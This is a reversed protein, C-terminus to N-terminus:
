STLLWNSTTYEASEDTGFRYEWEFDKAIKTFYRVYDDLTSGELGPATNIELVYAREEASNYIVDVAGFDLSTSGMFCDVAVDVCAEYGPKDEIGERSYVFGNAHNRIRWNPSPCGLRRAKRQVSIVSCTGVENTGLHVRYEEVKKVYKVYLPADVLEEPTDAIVIGEGSHGNLITRCVIPYAEEPISGKDTWHPPVQDAGQFFTLKDCVRSVEEPPNLAWRLLNEDECTTAGWNIVLDERRPKFRSGSRKLRLGGLAKALAKASKSASTYPFVRIRTTNSNM